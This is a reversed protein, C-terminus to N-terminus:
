LSKSYPKSNAFINSWSITEKSPSRTENEMLPTQSVAWFQDIIENAGCVSRGECIDRRIRTPFARVRLDPAWHLQKIFFGIEQCPGKLTACPPVRLLFTFVYFQFSHLVSYVTCYKIKSLKCSVLHKLCSIISYTHCWFHWCFNQFM